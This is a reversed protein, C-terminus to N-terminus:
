DRVLKFFQRSCVSSQVREIKLWSAKDPSFVLTFVRGDCWGASRKMDLLATQCPKGRKSVSSLSKRQTTHYTISGRARSYGQTGPLYRLSAESAGDMTCARVLDPTRTARQQGCTMIYKTLPPRSHPQRALM